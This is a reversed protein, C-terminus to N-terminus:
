RTRNMAGKIMDILFTLFFAWGGLERATNTAGASGSGSARVDKGTRLRVLYYGTTFCGLAYAAFVLVIPTM